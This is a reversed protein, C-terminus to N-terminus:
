TQRESQAGSNNSQMFLAIILVIWAIKNIITTVNNLIQLNDDAITFVRTNIMRWFLSVLFFLSFSVLTLLHKRPNKSRFYISLGIGVIFILMYSIQSWAYNSVSQFVIVGILGGIISGIFGGKKIQNNRIDILVGIPVGILGGILLMPILAFLGLPYGDLWGGISWPFVFSLIIFLILNILIGLLGLLSSKFIKTGM